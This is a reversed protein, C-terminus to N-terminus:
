PARDSAAARSVQVRVAHQLEESQVAVGLRVDLIEHCVTKADLLESAVHGRSDGIRNGPEALDWSV